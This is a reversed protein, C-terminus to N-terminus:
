TTPPHDKVVLPM